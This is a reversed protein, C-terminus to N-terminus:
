DELELLYDASVNLVECIQKLYGINPYFFDNCWKNVCDKSVGLIDALKKQSIHKAKLAKKLRTGFEPIIVECHRM